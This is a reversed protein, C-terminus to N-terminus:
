SSPSSGSAHILSGAKESSEFLQRIDNRLPRLYPEVGMMRFCEEVSILGNKSRVSVKTFCVAHTDGRSNRFTSQWVYFKDDWGILEVSVFVRSFRKFPKRYLISNGVAIAWLGNKIGSFIFGSRLNCENQVIDALAFYKAANLTVGTECDVFPLVVFSRTVPGHPPVKPKFYGSFLAWIFRISLAM